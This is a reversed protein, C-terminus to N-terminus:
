LAQLGATPVTTEPRRYDFASQGDWAAGDPYRLTVGATAAPEMLRMNVGTMDSNFEPAVTFHTTSGCRSCFHVLAGPKDRDARSYLATRGGVAVEAGSYYGWVAGRSRCLSCNCNHLFDPQHEVTLRVDGCHCSGTM